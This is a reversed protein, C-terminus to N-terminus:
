QGRYSYIRFTLELITNTDSARINRDRNIRVVLSVARFRRRERIDWPAASRCRSRGRSYSVEGVRARHHVKVALMPVTNDGQAFRLTERSPCLSAEGESREPSRSVREAHCSRGQINFNM